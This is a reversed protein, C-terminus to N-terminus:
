SWVRYDSPARRAPVREPLSSGALVALGSLPAWWAVAVAALMMATAVAYGAIVWRYTVGPLHGRWLGARQAHRTSFAFVGILPIFATTLAIVAIRSTLHSGLLGTTFPVLAVFGLGVVTWALLLPDFRELRAFFKHHQRWINAVLAFGLVFAALEPAVDRLAQGLQGSTVNGVAIGLVLLTLVIAFVADCLNVLRAFELDDRHHGCEGLSTASGSTALASM